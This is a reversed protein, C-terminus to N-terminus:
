PNWQCQTCCDCSFVTSRECDAWFDIFDLRCVEQGVIGTLDTHHLLLTEITLILLIFVFSNGSVTISVQYAVFTMIYESLSSLNAYESPITGSIENFSLDMRILNNLQGYETPLTGERSTSKLQLETLNQLLGLETPLTGSMSEQYEVRLTDLNSLLALTSPLTGEFLESNGM